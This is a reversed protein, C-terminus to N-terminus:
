APRPSALEPSNNITLQRNWQAALQLGAVTKEGKRIRVTGRDAASELLATLGRSVIYFNM